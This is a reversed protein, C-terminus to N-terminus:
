DYKLDKYQEVLKFFQEDTSRRNHQEEM